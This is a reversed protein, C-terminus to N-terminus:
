VSAVPFDFEKRNNSVASMLSYTSKQSKADENIDM